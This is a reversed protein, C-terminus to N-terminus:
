AAISLSFKWIPHYLVQNKDFYSWIQTVVMLALDILYKVALVAVLLYRGDIWESVVVPHLQLEHLFKRIFSKFHQSQSHSLLKFSM